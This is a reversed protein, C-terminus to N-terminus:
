SFMRWGDFNPLQVYIVCIYYVYMCVYMDLCGDLERRGIPRVCQFGSVPLHKKMERGLENMKGFGKREVMVDCLTHLTQLSGNDRLHRYLIEAAKQKGSSKIESRLEEPIVKKIELKNAIEEASIDELFRDM